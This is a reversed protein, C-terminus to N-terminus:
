GQTGAKKKPRDNIRKRCSTTSLPADAGLLAASGLKPDIAAARIDIPIAPNVCRDGFRLRGHRL